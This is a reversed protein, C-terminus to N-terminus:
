VVIRRPWSLSAFTQATGLIESGAIGLGSRGWCYMRGRSTLVCTTHSGTAIDVIRSPEDLDVNCMGPEPVGASEDIAGCASGALALAVLVVMRADSHM